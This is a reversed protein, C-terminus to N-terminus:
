RNLQANPANFRSEESPFYKGGRYPVRKHFNAKRYSTWLINTGFWLLILVMLLISMTTNFRM